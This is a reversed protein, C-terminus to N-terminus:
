SFVDKLCVDINFTPQVFKMKDPFTKLFDPFTELCYLNVRKHFVIYYLFFRMQDPFIGLSDPSNELHYLNIRKHFVPKLCM